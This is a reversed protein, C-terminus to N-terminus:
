GERREYVLEGNHFRLLGGLLMAATIQGVEVEAVAAQPHVRAADWHDGGYHDDGVYAARGPGFLRTADCEGVKWSPCRQVTLRVRHLKEIPEIAPLVM